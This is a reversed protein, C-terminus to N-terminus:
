TILQLVEELPKRLVRPARSPLQLAQGGKIWRKAARYVAILVLLYFAGYLYGGMADTFWHRGDYIVWTGSALIYLAGAAWIAYMQRRSSIFRGALYMLFGYFLLMHLTTGSPFSFGQPGGVVEVLDATPRPRAIVDRLFLNFLDPVSILVLAIAEVRHRLFWFIVFAMVLAGGAVGKVGMWFVWSKLFRGPGLSFGQMWQTIDVDWDFLDIRLAVSTAVIAAVLSVLIAIYLHQERMGRETSRLTGYISRKTQSDAIGM